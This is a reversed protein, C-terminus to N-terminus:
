SAMSPQRASIGVFYWPFSAVSSVWLKWVHSLTDSRFAYLMVTSWWWVATCFKRRKVSGMGIFYRLLWGVLFVLLTIGFHVLLFDIPM